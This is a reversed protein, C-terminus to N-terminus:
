LRNGVRIVHLNRSIEVINPLTCKADVLVRYRGHYTRTFCVPMDRMDMMLLLSVLLLSPKLPATQSEQYMALMDDHKTFILWIENVNIYEKHLLWLIMAENVIYRTYDINCKAGGIYKQIM